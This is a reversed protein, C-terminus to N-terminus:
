HLPLPIPGLLCDSAICTDSSLLLLAFQRAKHRSAGSLSSGTGASVVSGGAGRGGGLFCTQGAATGLEIVHLKSLINGDKLTKQAFTIVLSPADRGAFQALSLRFATCKM